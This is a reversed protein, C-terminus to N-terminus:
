KKLLKKILSKAKQVKKGILTVLNKPTMGDKEHVMVSLAEDAAEFYEKEQCFLMCDNFINYLLNYNYEEDPIMRKVDFKVKRNLRIRVDMRLVGEDGGLLSMAMANESVAQIYYAKNMLSKHFGNLVELAEGAVLAALRYRGREYYWEARHVMSRAVGYIDLPCSHGSKGKRSTEFAIPKGNEFERSARYRELVYSISQLSAYIGELPKEIGRLNLDGKEVEMPKDYDLKVHVTKGGKSVYYTMDDRFIKWYPNGIVKDNEDYLFTDELVYGIHVNEKKSDEKIEKAGRIFDIENLAIDYKKEGFLVEREKKAVGSVVRNEDVFQLDYDRLLLPPTEEKEIKTLPTSYLYPMKDAENIWLLETASVVPLVRFGNVYLCYSNFMNQHYEEEVVVAAHYRRSEQLKRYNSDIALENFKYRKIADRLNSGDYINNCGKLLRIFQKVVVTNSFDGLDFQHFAALVENMMENNQGKWFLFYMFNFEPAQIGNEKQKAIEKRVFTEDFLFQVEPYCMIIDRLVTSYNNEKGTGCCSVYDIIIHLSDKKSNREIIPILDRPDNFRDKEGDLSFSFKQEYCVRSAKIYQYFSRKRQLNLSFYIVIENM